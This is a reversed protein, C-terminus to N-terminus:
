CDIGCILFFKKYPIEKRRGLIGRSQEGYLIMVFSCFVESSCTKSFTLPYNHVKNFWKLFLQCLQINEDPVKNYLIKFAVQIKILNQIM